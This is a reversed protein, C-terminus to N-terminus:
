WKGEVNRVEAERPENKQMVTHVDVIFKADDFRQVFDTIRRGADGPMLPFLERMAPTFWRVRLEQDVFLTMVAGSSLVNSQTELEEIKLRLQANAAGLDDNALNLQDNASRLEENLAQLEERSSELEEHSVRLAESWDISEATHVA